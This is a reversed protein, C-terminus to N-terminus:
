RRNFHPLFGQSERSLFEQFALMVPTPARDTRSVAFWQRRIPLGDVDLVALTGASVEEAVSDLSLFGVGVDAMVARKIDEISDMETASHEVGIFRDFYPRTDSDRGRVIFHEAAIEAKSISASKLLPHVPSCVAVISQEGFIVARVSIDRPPRGILVMDVSRNKLREITALRRDIIFELDINPFKESFAAAISGAFYRVTSVAGVTLRGRKIGKFANIEDSLLQLREEIEKAADLVVRGAETPCMGHSLREFLQVGAEAELQKLQLTVAPATLGLAKAAEAVRGHSEISILSKLQRFTINKM